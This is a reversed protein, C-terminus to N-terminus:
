LQPSLILGFAMYSISTNNYLAIDSRSQDRVSKCVQADYGITSSSWAIGLLRGKRGLWIVHGIWAVVGIWYRVFVGYTLTTKMMM